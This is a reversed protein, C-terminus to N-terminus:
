SKNIFILILMLRHFLVDGALSVVCARQLHVTAPNVRLIVSVSTKQHVLTQKRLGCWLEM